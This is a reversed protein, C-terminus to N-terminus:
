YDFPIPTAEEPMYLPHWPHGHKTLRLCHAKPFMKIVQKSRERAEKFAGWCFIIRASFRGVNWLHADYGAVCNPTTTTLLDEPESTVLTFLNMMHLAGYGWTYAFHICRGITPDDDVDDATSPNLGIFLIAPKKEDWRRWLFTRHKKDASFEAGRSLYLPPHQNKM